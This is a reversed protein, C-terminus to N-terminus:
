QRLVGSGEPGCFDWLGWRTVKGQLSIQKTLQSWFCINAMYNHHQYGYQMQNMVQITTM